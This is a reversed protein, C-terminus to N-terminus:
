WPHFLDGAWTPHMLCTSLAPASPLGLPIPHPPLRSPPDPHPICTFGHSIWTLTHCFGSCYQLTILRWSIFIFHFFFACTDRTDMAASNVIALVHFCHLHGSVSSHIFSSTTIYIYFPINSWQLFSHISDTRTLYIFRSGTICLSTLWFSFFLCWINICIYIPDLFSTSSFRNAPCSSLHLHLSHVHPCLLPILPRSLNPSYCHCRSVVVHLISLRHSATTYCLFSLKTSPSSRPHPPPTQPLSLLSPSPYLRSIWM